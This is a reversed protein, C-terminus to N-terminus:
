LRLIAYSSDVSRVPPPAETHLQALPMRPKRPSAARPPDKGRIM